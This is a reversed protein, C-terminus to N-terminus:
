HSVKLHRQQVTVSEVARLVLKCLWMHAPDHDNRSHWVGRFTSSAVRYPPFAMVFDGDAVLLRALSCPLISFLNTGEMLTPIALSHPVTTRYRPAAGIAALAEQLANRDFM